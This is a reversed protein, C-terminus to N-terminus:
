LLRYQYQINNEKLIKELRDIKGSDNDATLFYLFPIFMLVQLMGTKLSILM